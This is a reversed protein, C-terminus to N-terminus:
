RPFPQCGQKAPVRLSESGDNARANLCDRGLQSVIWKKVVELHGMEAAHFVPTAGGGNAVRLTEVRDAKEVIWQLM